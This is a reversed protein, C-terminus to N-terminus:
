HAIRVGSRAMDIPRQPKANEESWAGAPIEEDEVDLSLLM